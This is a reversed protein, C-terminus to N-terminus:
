AMHRCEAALKNCFTKRQKPSTGSGVDAYFGGVPKGIGSGIFFVCDLLIEQWLAYIREEPPFQIREDIANYILYRGSKRHYKM